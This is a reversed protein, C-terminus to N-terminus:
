QGPPPFRCSYIGTHPICKRDTGPPYRRCAACLFRPFWGRAKPDKYPHYYHAEMSVRGRPRFVQAAEARVWSKLGKFNLRSRYPHYYRYYENVRKLTFGDIFFGIRYDEM